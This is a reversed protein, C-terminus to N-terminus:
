FRQHPPAGHANKFSCQLTGALFVIHWTHLQAGMCWLIACARRQSAPHLNEAAGVKAGPLQHFQSTNACLPHLLWCPKHPTFHKDSPEILASGNMQFPTARPPCHIRTQLEILNLLTLLNALPAVRTARGAAPGAAQTLLTALQVRALLGLRAAQWLMPALRGLNVIGICICM